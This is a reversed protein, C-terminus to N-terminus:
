VTQFEETVRILSVNNPTVSTPSMERWNMAYVNSGYLNLGQITSAEGSVHGIPLIRFSILGTFAIDCVHWLASSTSLEYNLEKIIM